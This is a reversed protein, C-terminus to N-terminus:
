TAQIGLTLRDQLLDLCQKNEIYDLENTDFHIHSYHLMSSDHSNLQARKKLKLSKHFHLKM